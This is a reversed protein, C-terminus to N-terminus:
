AQSILVSLPTDGDDAEDIHIKKRRDVASVGQQPYINIIIPSTCRELDVGDDVFNLRNKIKKKRPQEINSATDSLNSLDSHAGRKVAIRVNHILEPSVDKNIATNGLSDIKNTTLESGSKLARGMGKKAAKKVTKKVTTSTAKRVAKRVGVKTAATVVERPGGGNQANDM